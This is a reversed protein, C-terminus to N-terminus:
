EDVPHRVLQLVRREGEDMSRQAAAKLAESDRAEIARIIAEHGETIVETGTTFSSANVVIFSHSIGMLTEWTQLLRKHHAAAMYVRHFEIDLDAFEEHNGDALAEMMEVSLARMHQIQEETMGALALDAAFGELLRRLSYIEHVMAPTIEAVFKGRYPINVVLGEHELRVLAERVPGRSVGLMEALQTELLHTNPSFDGKIIAMRLTALVSTWLQGNPVRLMANSTLNSGIGVM